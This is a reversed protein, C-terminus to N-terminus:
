AVDLQSGLPHSIGFYEVVSQFFHPNHFEQQEQLHEAWSKGHPLTSVLQEFKTHKKTATSWDHAEEDNGTESSSLQLSLYDVHWLIMSPNRSSVTSSTPPAPLLSRWDEHKPRKRKSNKHDNTPCALNDSKVKHFDSLDADDKESLNDEDDSSTDMGAGVLSSLASPNPNAAAHSTSNVKASTKVDDNNKEGNSSSSSDSGYGALADM